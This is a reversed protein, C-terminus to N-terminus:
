VPDEQPSLRPPSLPTVQWVHGPIEPGMPCLCGCVRSGKDLGMIRTGESGRSWMRVGGWLPYLGMWGGLGPM